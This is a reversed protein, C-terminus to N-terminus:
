GDKGDASQRIAGVPFHPSEQSLLDFGMHRVEALRAPAPWACHPPPWRFASAPWPGHCRFAPSIRVYLARHVRLRVESSGALLEVQSRLASRELVQAVQAVTSRCPLVM